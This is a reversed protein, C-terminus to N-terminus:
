EHNMLKRLPSSSSSKTKLKWVNQTMLLLNGTFTESLCKKYNIFMTQVVRSNEHMNYVTMTVILVKVVICHKKTLNYKALLKM